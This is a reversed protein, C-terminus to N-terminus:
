NPINFKRDCFKCVAYHENIVLHTSPHVCSNVMEVRLAQVSDLIPIKRAMLETIQEELPSLQSLLLVMNNMKRDFSIKEGRTAANSITEKIKRSTTEEATEYEPKRIRSM